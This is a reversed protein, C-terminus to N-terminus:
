AGYSSIVITALDASNVVAKVAGWILVTAIGYSEGYRFIEERWDFRELGPTKRGFGIAGAGAGFFISRDVNTNIATGGDNGYPLYPDVYIAVGDHMGIYQYLSNVWRGRLITDSNSTEGGAMAQRQIDFFSGVTSAESYLNDRQRPTTILGYAMTNLGPLKARRIQPLSNATRMTEAATVADRIYSSALEDGSVLTAETTHSSSSFIIHNSDPETITNNADYGTTGSHDCGLSNGGLVNLLQIEMAEANRAGLLYRMDSRFDFETRQDNLDTERKEAFAQKDLLLSYDTYSPAHENGYIPAGQIPDQNSLSLYPITIKDGAAKQLDDKIVLPSNMPDKGVLASAITPPLAEKELAKSWRKVTLNDGTAFSLEAM